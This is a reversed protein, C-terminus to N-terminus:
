SSYNPQWESSITFFGYRGQIPRGTYQCCFRCACDKPNFTAISRKNCHCGVHSVGYWGGCWYCYQLEDRTRDDDQRNRYVHVRM